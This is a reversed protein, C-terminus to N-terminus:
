FFIRCFKRKSYRWEKKWSIIFQSNKWYNRWFKIKKELFDTFFFKSVEAFINAYIGEPAKGKSIQFKVKFNAWSNNLKDLSKKLLNKLPKNSSMGHIGGSVVGTISHHITGSIIGPIWSSKKLLKEFREKIFGEM